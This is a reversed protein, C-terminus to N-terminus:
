QLKTKPILQCEIAPEDKVESKLKWPNSSVFSLQVAESEAASSLGSSGLMDSWPSSHNLARLSAVEDLLCPLFLDLSTESLPQHTLGTTALM